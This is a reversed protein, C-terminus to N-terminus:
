KGVREFLFRDVTDGKSNMVFVNTFLCDDGYRLIYKASPATNGEIKQYLFFVWGEEAGIKGIPQTIYKGCEVVEDGGKRQVFKIFM